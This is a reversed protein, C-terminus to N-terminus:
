FMTAQHSIFVENISTQFCLHHILHVRVKIVNEIWEYRTNFRFMTIFYKRIRIISCKSSPLITRTNNISKHRANSQIGYVNIIALGIDIYNDIDAQSIINLKYQLM